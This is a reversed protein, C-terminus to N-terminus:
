QTQIMYDVSRKIRQEDNTWCRHQNLNPQLRPFSSHRRLKRSRHLRHSAKHRKIQTTDSPAHLCGGGAAGTALVDVSCTAIADGEGLGVGGRGDPGTSYVSTVVWAPMRKLCLLPAAPLFYRGSVIPEPPAKRSKSLSPQCSM